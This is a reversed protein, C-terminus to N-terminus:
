CKTKIWETRTGSRYPSSAQKSVIGELGLSCAHDLVLEGDGEIHEVYKILQAGRTDAPLAELVRKRDFLAAGRLDFGDLYLLDFACYVLRVKVRRPKGTLAAPLDYVVAEGKADIAVLEGLVVNSVPLAAISGAITPM